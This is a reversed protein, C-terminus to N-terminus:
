KEYWYYLAKKTNFDLTKKMKKSKKEQGAVFNEKNNIIM